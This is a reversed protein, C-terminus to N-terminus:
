KQGEQLSPGFFLREIFEIMYQHYLEEREGKEVAFCQHFIAGSALALIQAYMETNFSALEGRTVAHRLIAEIAHAIEENSKKHLAVEESSQMDIQLFSMLQKQEQSIRFSADIMACPVQKFPMDLLAPDQFVRALTAEVDLAVGTYVEHKNRFYLYVTGVAMGAMKAIDAITIEDYGKQAFLNRAAELILERKPRSEEHTREAM